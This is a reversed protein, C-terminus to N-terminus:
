HLGRTSYIEVDRAGKEALWAKLFEQAAAEHAPNDTEPLQLTQPIGLPNNETQPIDACQVALYHCVKELYEALAAQEKNTMMFTDNCVERRKKLPFRSNFCPPQNGSSCIKVAPM